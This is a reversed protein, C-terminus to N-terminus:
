EELVILEFYTSTKSEQKTVFFLLYTRVKTGITGESGQQEDLQQALEAKKQKEEALLNNM